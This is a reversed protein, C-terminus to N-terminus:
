FTDSLNYCLILAKGICNVVGDKITLKEESILDTYIGDPLETKIQAANGKLPFIGLKASRGNWRRLIAIDNRDDAAAFFSDGSSLKEKKIRCLKKLLESIDPGGNWDVPDKDFLSPLHQACLEQGAYLLTSGKLFYLMATFNELVQRDKVLSAIRPQDHNELCRMKVYNEPYCFEQFNLLETYASLPLEGKLYKDFVERIDYDYEMDFAEFLDIDRAAYVGRKRM